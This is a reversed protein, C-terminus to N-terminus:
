YSRLVNLVHPFFSHYEASQVVGRGGHASLDYAFIGYGQSVPAIERMVPGYAANIQAITPPPHGNESFMGLVPLLKIGTARAASAAQRYIRHVAEPSPLYGGGIYANIGVWRLHKFAPFLTGGTEAVGIGWPPLDDGWIDVLEQARAGMLSAMFTMVQHSPPIHQFHHFAHPWLSRWHGMLMHTFPEDGLEIGLVRDLLGRARLEVYVNTMDRQWARNTDVYWDEPMFLSLICKLNTQELAQWDAAAPNVWVYSVGAAELEQYRGNHLHVGVPKM